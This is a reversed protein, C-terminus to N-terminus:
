SIFQPFSLCFARLNAKSVHVLCLCTGKHYVGLHSVEDGEEKVQSTVDGRCGEGRRQAAGDWLCVCGGVGTLPMCHPPAMCCSLAGPLPLKKKKRKKKQQQKSPLVHAQSDTDSSSRRSPCATPETVSGASTNQAEPSVEGPPVPLVLATQAPLANEARAPLASSPTGPSGPSPAPARCELVSDPPVLAARPRVAARGQGASHAGPGARSDAAAVHEERRCWRHALGSDELKVCSQCAELSQAHDVLGAPRDGLDAPLVTVAHSAETRQLLGVTGVGPRSGSKDCVTMMGEKDKTESLDQIYGTGKQLSGTVAESPIIDPYLGACQAAEPMEPVVSCSTPSKPLLPSRENPSGPSRPQFLLDTVQRCCNAFLSNGM